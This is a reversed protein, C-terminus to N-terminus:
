QPVTAGTAIGCVGYTHTDVPHFSYEYWGRMTLMVTGYCLQARCETSSVLMLPRKRESSGNNVREKEDKADAKPIYGQIGRKNFVQGECDM